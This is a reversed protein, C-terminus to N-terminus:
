AMLDVQGSGRLSQYHPEVFDNASDGTLGDSSGGRVRDHQGDQGQGGSQRQDGARADFRLSQGDARIGADALARNLDASERRLMELAAPSDASMVARMIGDRDFSLHVNVRGMERPDLRILLDERGGKAMRAIEVGIDAGIRGPQAHVVPMHPTPPVAPYPSGTPKNAVPAMTQTLLPSPLGNSDASEMTPAGGQAAADTLGSAPAASAVDPESTTPSPHGQPSSSPRAGAVGATVSIASADPEVTEAPAGNSVSSTTAPALAVPVVPAANAQVPPSVPMAQGAADAGTGDSEADDDSPKAPEKKGIPSPSEPRVVPGTEPLAVIPDANADPQVVPKSDPMGPLSTPPPASATPVSPLSAQVDGGETAPTEGAGVIPPPAILPPASASPQGAVVDPLGGAAAPVSLPAPSIGVPLADSAEILAAFATAGGSALADANQSPLGIAAMPGPMPGAMAGPLPLTMSTPM